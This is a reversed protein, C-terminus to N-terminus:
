DGTEELGKLLLERHAECEVYNKIALMRKESIKKKLRHGCLKNLIKFPLSEGCFTRIYRDIMKRAFESYEKEIFGDEKIYESREKFENMISEDESYKVIGEKKELPIYRINMGDTFDAEILLASNWFENDKRDFIFNGQGYVITSNNYREECGICHSHQCIVLDAGKECMKRCTKQLLPSPYRYYEKGGHYLVIVYNCQKKLQEIHDLSEFPDFPNAGPYNKEAISFEHEACAYIGIKLGDKEIIYSKQSESLNNGAGVYSIGNESLVNITSQLGEISQDMIHNNAITVLDVGLKKIGNMCLTSTILNRGCKKIPTESDALPTELNFVRFDADKLISELKKDIIKEINGDSFSEINSQTPVIDAGILIKMYDGTKNNYLLRREWIM